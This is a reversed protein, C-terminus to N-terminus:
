KRLTFIKGMLVASYPIIHFIIYMLKRKVPIGKRKIMIKYHKNYIRNYEGNICDLDRENKKLYMQECYRLIIDTCIKEHTKLVQEIKDESEFFAIREDYAKLYDYRHPNNKLKKAINDMISSGHQYYYYLMDETFLIKKANYVARYTVFEDENLVGVPFFIKDFTKVKYIKACSQSKLSYGLLANESKTCFVKPDTDTKSFIDRDGKEYGCQAIQCLNEECLSIMKEAYMEHVFDDSDLFTIYDEADAREAVYLLGANRADSLGGNKKHIVKINDYKDAYEDCIAPCRDPSGDDVLIIETNGYTQSIVSEICRPLYKEVKYVPIIFFIKKM